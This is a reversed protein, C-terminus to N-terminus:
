RLRQSILRLLANPKIFFDLCRVSCQIADFCSQFNIGIFSFQIHGRTGYAFENCGAPYRMPNLKGLASRKLTIELAGNITIAIRKKIQSAIPRVRRTFGGCFSNRPFDLHQPRAQVSFASNIRLSFRVFPSAPLGLSVIRWDLRSSHESWCTRTAAALSNAATIFSYRPVQSHKADIIKQAIM